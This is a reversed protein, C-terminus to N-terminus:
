YFTCDMEIFQPLDSVLFFRWLAATLRGGALATGEQMFYIETEKSYFARNPKGGRQPGHVISEKGAVSPFSM